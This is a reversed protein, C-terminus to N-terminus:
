AGLRPPLADRSGDDLRIKDLLHWRAPQSATLVLGTAGGAGDLQLALLVGRRVKGPDEDLVVVPVATVPKM